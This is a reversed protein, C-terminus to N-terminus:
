PATLRLTQGERIQDPNEIDNWNALDRSKIGHTRAIGNLTDGAMVKYSDGSSASSGSSQGSGSSASGSSPAPPTTNGQGVAAPPPAADAPAQASPPAAPAEATEQKQKCATFALVMVVPLVYKM